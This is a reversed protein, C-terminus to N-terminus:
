SVKMAQSLCKIILQGDFPKNLFCLAGGQFADAEITKDPFGTIFIFPTTLGRLRVARQLEIGNMNPMQVDSIVCATSDLLGSNLFDAASSFSAESFGLSRILGGLAVRVSPDDDVISVLQTM